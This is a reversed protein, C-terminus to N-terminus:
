FYQAIKLHTTLSFVITVHFDCRIRLTEQTTDRDEVITVFSKDGVEVLDEEVEVEYTGRM